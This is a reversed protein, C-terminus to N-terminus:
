QGDKKHQVNFERIILSTSCKKIHSNAVQIGEKSFYRNLSEAWKKILSNKNNNNKNLEM